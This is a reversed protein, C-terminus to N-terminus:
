EFFPTAAEKVARDIKKQPDSLGDDSEEDSSEEDEDDEAIGNKRRWEDINQQLVLNPMFRSFSPLTIPKALQTM